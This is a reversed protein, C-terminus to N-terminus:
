ERPVAPAYAQRAEAAARGTNERPVRQRRRARRASSCHRWPPTCTTLQARVGVERAVVRM